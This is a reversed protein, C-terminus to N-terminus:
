SEEEYHTFRNIRGHTIVENNLTIKSYPDQEHWMQLKKIIELTKYEYSTLPNNLYQGNPFLVFSVINKDSNDSTRSTQSM